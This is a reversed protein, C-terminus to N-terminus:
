NVITCYIFGIRGVMLLNCIQAVNTLTIFQSVNTALFVVWSVSFM